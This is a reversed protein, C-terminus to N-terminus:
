RLPSCLEDGGSLSHEAEIDLFNVLAPNTNKAAWAFGHCLRQTDPSLSKFVVSDDTDVLTQLERPIISAGIGAAILCLLGQSSDSEQIVQPEFGHDKCIKEMVHRLHFGKNAPFGVFPEHALQELPVDVHGALPHWAALALALESSAFDRTVIGPGHVPLFCLAIDIKGDLLALRLTGTAQPGEIELAVEPYRRRYAAILRPLLLLSTRGTYGVRLRGTEGRQTQRCEGVARDLQAFLKQMGDFFVQGARSLEVHRTHREFLKVGLEAELEQIRQSLPPQAMNLRRAARTFSLEEAVALFGRLHRFEM